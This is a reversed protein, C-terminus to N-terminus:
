LSKLGGAISTQEARLQSEFLDIDKTLQLAFELYYHGNPTLRIVRAHRHFLTFGLQKELWTIKKNVASQTTNLDNAATFTGLQAVKSVLSLVFFPGIM